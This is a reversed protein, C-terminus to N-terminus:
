GVPVRRLVAWAFVLSGGMLAGATWFPWPAGFAGFIWTGTTPGLTRALASCSRSLGITGGQARADTLRSLLGMISPNHLASGIALLATTVTLLSAAPTWPLLVLGVAMLAIGGLILRREGFRRVLRGVLGGQVAVLVVGIYAFLWSTEARSFGFHANCFLPLTVEMLSFCFVVLFFLALIGLLPRDAALHKFGQASLWPRERAAGRVEKPLSEPLWLFACLFNVAALGAAALPVAAAGLPALMGGLAPGLVFGLGFAAGVMGMARSREAGETSDAVYAQAVGYNATLGALTRALLLTTFDGAAAFLLYALANGAISALLVPRRGLRDSIRGLVPACVLQALSYASFLLGIRAPPVDFELAYFPLIPLIMGFGVLDLLVTLFVTSYARRHPIATAAPM